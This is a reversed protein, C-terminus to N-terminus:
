RRRRCRGPGTVGGGLDHSRCPAVTMGPGSALPGRAPGRLLYRPQRFVLPIASEYDALECRVSGPVATRARGQEEKVVPVCRQTLNDVGVFPHLVLGHRVVVRGPMAPAHSNHLGKRQPALNVLVMVASPKCRAGEPARAAAPFPLSAQCLGPEREATLATRRATTGRVCTREGGLARGPLHGSLRCCRGIRTHPIWGDLSASNWNPVEFGCGEGCGTRTSTETTRVRFICAVSCTLGHHYTRLPCDNRPQESGQDHPAHRTRPWAQRLASIATHSTTMCSTGSRSPSNPCSRSWPANAQGAHASAGSAPPSAPTRTGSRPRPLSTSCGTINSNGLRTTGSRSVGAPQNQGPCVGIWSALHGAIPFQNMDGGTEALIIEAATRGIGPISGLLDLEHGREAVPGAIRADFVTVASKFRGIEDLYHCVMCARHGTFDGDLAAILAPIKARARGVALSARQGPGREGAVLAELVARGSVGTVDTLVSTLKM